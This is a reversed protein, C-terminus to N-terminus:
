QHLLRCGQFLSNVVDVGAPLASKTRTRHHHAGISTQYMGTILASRMTSCVPATTFTNTFKVGENAIRDINPTSVAPTGYAGAHMGWDDGIIWVINPQSSQGFAHCCSFVVLICAVAFKGLKRVLIRGSVM